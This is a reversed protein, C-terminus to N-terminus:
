ATKQIGERCKGYHDVGAAHAEQICCRAPAAWGARLQQQRSLVACCLLAFCTSRGAATIDYGRASVASHFIYRLSGGAAAVDTAARKYIAAPRVERWPLHYSAAARSPSRRQVTADVAAGDHMHRQKAASRVETAHTPQIHALGHTEHPECHQRATRMHAAGAPLCGSRCGQLPGM